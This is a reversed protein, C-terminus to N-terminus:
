RDHLLQDLWRIIMYAEYYDRGQVVRDFDEKLTEAELAIEPECDEICYMEDWASQVSQLQPLWKM